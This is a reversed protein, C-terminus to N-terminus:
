KGISSSRRKSGTLYMCFLVVVPVIILGYVMAIYNQTAQAHEELPLIGYHEYTAGTLYGLLVLVFVQPSRSGVIRIGIHGLLLISFSVCLTVSIYHLTLVGAGFSSWRAFWEFYDQSVTAAAACGILYTAFFYSAVGVIYSISLALVNPM